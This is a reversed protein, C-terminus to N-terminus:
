DINPLNRMLNLYRQIVELEDSSFQDEINQNFESLYPIVANATKQGKKTLCLRFARGDETCRQRYVMETKELRKVLGTVASDDLVLTKAMTKMLSNPHQKLYFLAGIQVGSVGFLQKCHRDVYKMSSHRAQNLLFFLQRNEM